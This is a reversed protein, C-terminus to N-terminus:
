PPAEARLRITELVGDLEAYVEMNTVRLIAFGNAEFWADRRADRVREILTSHTAGDVEVVLKAAHCLFDAIYPGCPVQRRFQLGALRHARLATWLKREAGTMQLRLKRARSTLLPTPRERM